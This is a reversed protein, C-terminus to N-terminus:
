HFVNAYVHIDDFVIVAPAAEKACNFIEAIKQEADGMYKSILEYGTVFLFPCEVQTQVQKILISKGIGSAGTILVGKTHGVISTGQFTARIIELLLDVHKSKTIPLHSNLTNTPIPTDQTKITITSQKTLFFTDSPPDKLTYNIITFNENTGYISIQHVEDKNLTKNM